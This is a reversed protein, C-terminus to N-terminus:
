LIYTINRIAHNKYDSVILNGYMDLTLYHPENFQAIIGIGDVLGPIGTGTLSSSHGTVSDIRRIRHNKSDAIFINGTADVVCGIPTNFLTVNPAGDNYGSIGPRGALTKVVNSTTNLFRILHNSTDVVVVNDNRDVCLGQTGNGFTSATGPGNAFGQTGNGAVTQLNFDNFNMRRIRCNRSDALWLISNSAIAIGTVGRTLSKPNSSSYYPYGNSNGSVGSSVNGSITSVTPSTGPLAATIRRILNASFDSVIMSGTDSNVAIGVPQSFQAATILGDRSPLNGTGAYTSVLGNSGNVARVRNNFQDSVYVTNDTGVAIGRPGNFTANIGDRYGVGVGGSITTVFVLSKVPPTNIVPDQSERQIVFAVILTIAIGTAAFFVFIALLTYLKSQRKWDSPFIKPCKFSYKNKKKPPFIEAKSYKTPSRTAPANALRIENKSSPEESNLSVDPVGDHNPTRAIRTQLPTKESLTQSITENNSFSKFDTNSSLTLQTVLKPKPPPPRVPGLSQPQIATLDPKQFSKPQQYQKEVASKRQQAGFDVKPLNKNLKAPFFELIFGIIVMKIQFGKM